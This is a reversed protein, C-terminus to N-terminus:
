LLNLKKCKSCIFKEDKLENSTIEVESDCFSCIIKQIDQDSNCFKCKISDNDIVQSCNICLKTQGPTSKSKTSFLSYYVFCLSAFLFNQGFLEFEGKFLYVSSLLILIVYSTNTSFPYKFINFLIIIGILYGLAYLM